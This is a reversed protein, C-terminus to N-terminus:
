DFLDKALFPVGALAGVGRAAEFNAILQELPLISEIAARRQAPSLLTAARRQVERAAAETSLSQWDRFTM